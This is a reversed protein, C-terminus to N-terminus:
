LSEIDNEVEGKSRSDRSYPKWSNVDNIHLYWVRRKGEGDAISDSFLDEAKAENRLLRWITNPVVAKIEAAKEPSVFLESHSKAYALYGDNMGAQFADLLALRNDSTPFIYDIKGEWFQANGSLGWDYGAVRANHLTENQQSM